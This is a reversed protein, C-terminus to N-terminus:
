REAVPLLSEALNRALHWHLGDDRALVLQPERAAIRWELDRGDDLQLVVTEGVAAAPEHSVWIARAERWADILAVREDSGPLLAEPSAQWGGTTDRDLRLGPLTISRISVSAPLLQRAVLPAFDGDLPIGAPDDIQMVRPGVRVYRRFTVPDTAGLEISTDNFRLRLRPPALGMEALPLDDVAFARHAPQSVIRLLSDVATAEAAVEVPALLRWGGEGRELVVAADAGGQLEIREIATPALPTLPLVDAPRDRSLWALVAMVGILALLLLNFHARRM